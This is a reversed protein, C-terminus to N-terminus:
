VNAVERKRANIVHAAKLAKARAEETTMHYTRGHRERDDANDKRTGWRLNEPRNDLRNGNLHRIEHQPSPRPGHYYYCVVQHVMRRVRRGSDTVVRVSLYGDHLVQKMERMSRGRWKAFSWVEGEPGVAYNRPLTHKTTM